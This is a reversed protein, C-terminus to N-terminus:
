TVGSPDRRASGRLLVLGHGLCFWRVLWNDQIEGSYGHAVMLASALGLRWSLRGTQEAPLMMVLILEVTSQVDVWAVGCSLNEADGMTIFFWTLVHMGFLRMQFGLTHLAM